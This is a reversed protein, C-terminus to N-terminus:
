SESPSDLPHPMESIRVERDVAAVKVVQGNHITVVFQGSGAEQLMHILKQWCDLSRKVTVPRRLTADKRRMDKRRGTRPWSTAAM